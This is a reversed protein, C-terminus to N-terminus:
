TKQNWGDEKIRAERCKNCWASLNDDDELHMGIETEFIKKFGTKDNENLHQCIFAPRSFGHKKCQILKETKNKNIKKLEEVFGNDIEEILLFYIELNNKNIIRYM